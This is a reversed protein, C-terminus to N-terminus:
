CISPFRLHLPDSEEGQHPNPGESLDQSSHESPLPMGLKKRMVRAVSRPVKELEREVKSEDPLTGGNERKIKDIAGEALETNRMRNNHIEVSRGNCQGVFGLFHAHSGFYENIIEVSPVIEKPVGAGRAADADIILEKETKGNRKVEVERYQGANILDRQLANVEYLRKTPPPESLGDVDWLALFGCHIKPKSWENVRKARPTRSAIAPNIPLGARKQVEDLAIRRKQEKSLRSFVSSYRHKGMGGLERFEEVDNLTLYSADGEQYEPFKAAFACKYDNVLDDLGIDTMNLTALCEERTANLVRVCIEYWTENPLSASVNRGTPVIHLTGPVILGLRVADDFDKKVPIVRRGHNALKTIHDCVFRVSAESEEVSMLTQLDGALRRYGTMASIEENYPFLGICHENEIEDRTPATVGLQKCGKQIVSLKQKSTPLTGHVRQYLVFIKAVLLEDRTPARLLGLEQWDVSVTGDRAISLGKVTVPEDPMVKAGNSPPFKVVLAM